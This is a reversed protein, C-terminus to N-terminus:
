VYIEFNMAAFAFIHDGFTLFNSAFPRAIKQM